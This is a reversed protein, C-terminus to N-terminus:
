FILREGPNIENPGCIKNFPLSTSSMVTSTTVVNGKLGQRRKELCKQSGMVREIEAITVNLLTIDVVLSFLSRVLGTKNYNM